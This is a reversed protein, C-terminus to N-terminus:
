GKTKLLMSFNLKIKFYDGYDEEEFLYPTKDENVFLYEIHYKFKGPNEMWAAVQSLGAEDEILDVELTDTYVTFLHLTDFTAIVVSTTSDMDHAIVKGSFWLDEPADFDVIECSVKTIEYSTISEKYKEYEEYQTLDVSDTYTFGTTLDSDINVTYIGDVIEDIDPILNFDFEFDCSSLLIVLSFLPLYILKKM